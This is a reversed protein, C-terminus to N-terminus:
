SADVSSRKVQRLRMWVLLTWRYRALRFDNKSLREADLGCPLQHLCGEGGSELVDIADAHVGTILAARISMWHRLFKPLFRRDVLELHILTVM